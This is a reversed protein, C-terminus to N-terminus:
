QSSSMSMGKIRIGRVSSDSPLVFNWTTKMPAHKNLERNMHHPAERSKRAAYGEQLLLNINVIRVTIHEMMTQFTFLGTPPRRRRGLLDHGGILALCPQSFVTRTEGKQAAPVFELITLFGEPFCM